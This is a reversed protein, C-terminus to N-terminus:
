FLNEKGVSFSISIYQVGNKSQKTTNVRNSFFVFASLLRRERTSHKQPSDLLWLFSRISCCFEENKTGSFSILGKEQEETKEKPLVFVFIEWIVSGIVCLDDIAFLIVFSFLFSTKM